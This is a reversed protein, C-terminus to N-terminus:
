IYSRRKRCFEFWDIVRWHGGVAGASVDGGGLEELNPKKDGRGRM